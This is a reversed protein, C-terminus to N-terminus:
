RRSPWDGGTLAAMAKPIDRSRLVKPLPGATSMIFTVSNSRNLSGHTSAITVSGAFSKAGSFYNNALSVLVDPTHRVLGFHARWLRQLPAPYQHKYTAALLDDASHFGDASGMGTLIGVLKLPDGATPQYRYGDGHRTIIARGGDASLVVVKDRDAYSAIDVGAMSILDGALRAPRRTAFRAFTVLGFPVYVVDDPKHLSKALRWGKRRLYGEFDIRKSPTYSHGHDSALTIKTLGRTEYIVQNIFQETRRLCQVQGAAGMRTGVGASSVFYALMEKTRAHDFVRKADNIEKGFVAWPDIYGLADWLTDARYQLLRNYPENVGELYDSTGGVLKNAARDFYLAEYARCPMGDIIDQICMDTMTPYPAVVQSPRHFARLGGQQYYKNVVDYGFGDLILVLHRCHSFPIEDLDVVQDPMGDGTTDYGVRSIRGQGDAFTFYEVVGDGNADYARTAGAQLAAKKDGAVPFNVPKRCGIVSLLIVLGSLALARNAKSIM